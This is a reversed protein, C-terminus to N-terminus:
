GCTCTTTTSSWDSSSVRAAAVAAAPPSGRTRTTAPRGSGSPQIPLGHAQQCPTACASPSQSSNVSASTSCEGSESPLVSAIAMRSPRPPSVRNGVMSLSPTASRTTVGAARTAM